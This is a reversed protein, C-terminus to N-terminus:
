RGNLYSNRPLVPLRPFDPTRFYKVEARSKQLCFRRRFRRNSAAERLPEQPDGKPDV